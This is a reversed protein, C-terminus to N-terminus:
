KKKTLANFVEAQFLTNATALDSVGIRPYIWTFFQPMADPAPQMSCMTILYKLKSVNQGLQAIHAFIDMDAETNWDPLPVNGIARKSKGTFPVVTNILEFEEM